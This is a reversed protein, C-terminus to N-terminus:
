TINLYYRLMSCYKSHKSCQSNEVITGPCKAINQINQISINLYYRFMSCPSSHSLLLKTLARLEGGEQEGQSCKPNNAINPSRCLSINPSMQFDYRHFMGRSSRKRKMKESKITSRRLEIYSYIFTFYLFIYLQTYITYLIYIM